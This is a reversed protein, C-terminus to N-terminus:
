KKAICKMKLIAPHFSWEFFSLPNELSIYFDVKKRMIIEISYPCCRRPVFTLVVDTQVIVINFPFKIGIMSNAIGYFIKLVWKWLQCNDVWLFPLLIYFMYNVSVWRWAMFRCQLQMDTYRYISTITIRCYTYVCSHRHIIYKYIDWPFIYRLQWRYESFSGSLSWRFCPYETSYMKRQKRFRNM